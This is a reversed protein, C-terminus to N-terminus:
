IVMFVEAVMFKGTKYDEELKFIYKNKEKLNKECDNFVLKRKKPIMFNMLNITNSKIISNNIFRIVKCESCILFLHGNNSYKIENLKGQYYKTIKKNFPQINSIEKM